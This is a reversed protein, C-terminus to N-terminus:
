WVWLREVFPPRMNHVAAKLRFIPLHTNVCTTFNVIWLSVESSCLLHTPLHLLSWWCPLLPHHRDEQLAGGLVGEGEGQGRGGGRGGGWGWVWKFFEGGRAGRHEWRQTERDQVPSYDQWSILNNQDEETWLVGKRETESPNGRAGRRTKQLIIISKYDTVKGINRSFYKNGIDRGGTNRKERRRQLDLMVAITTKALFGRSHRWTPLM